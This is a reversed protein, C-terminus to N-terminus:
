QVILLGVGLACCLGFVVALAVLAFAPVADRLRRSMLVPAALLLGGVGAVAMWLWWLSTRARGGGGGGGGAAALGSRFLREGGASFANHQANVRLTHVASPQLTGLRLRFAYQGKIQGAVTQYARLLSGENEISFLVGGTAEAVAGLFTLDADAGLGICFVPTNQGRLFELTTKEDRTSATDKGDTLAVIARRKLGSKQLDTAAAVLADRMATNGAARLRGLATRLAEKNETLPQMAEIATDFGLIEIRQGSAARAVFDIAAEQAGALKEGAMSGSRDIALVIGSSASADFVSSVEHRVVRGDVRVEFNSDLLGTVSAGSADTVSVYAGLLPWRDFELQAITVSLAPRPATRTPGPAAGSLWPAALLVAVASLRRGIVAGRGHRQSKM